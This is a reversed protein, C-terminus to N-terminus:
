FRRSIVDPLFVLAQFPVFSMPFPLIQPFVFSSKQKRKEKEIEKSVAYNSLAFNYRLKRPKSMRTLYPAQLLQSPLRPRGANRPRQEASLPVAGHHAARPLPPM